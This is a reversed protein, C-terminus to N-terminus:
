LEWHVSGWGGSNEVPGRHLAIGTELAEDLGQYIFGRGPEGAPGGLLTIGTGQARRGMDKQIWLLPAGGGPEWLLAGESVSAGKQSGEKV